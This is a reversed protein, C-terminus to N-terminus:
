RDPPDVQMPHRRWHLSLYRVGAEGAGLGGRAAKPIIICEQSALAHRHDDITIALQGSTVIVLVDRAANTHEDVGDGSSWSVLNVNLDESAIGWLVARGSGSTLDIPVGVSPEPRSVGAAVGLSATRGM